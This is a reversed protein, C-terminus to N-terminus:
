IVEIEHLRDTYTEKYNIIRVISYKNMVALEPQGVPSFNVIFTFILEEEWGWM